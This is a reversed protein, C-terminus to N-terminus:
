DQERDHVKKSTLAVYEEMRINDTRLPKSLDHFYKLLDPIASLGRWILAFIFVFPAALIFAIVRPRMALTYTYDGTKEVHYEHLVWNM